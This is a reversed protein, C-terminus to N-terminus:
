KIKKFKFISHFYIVDINMRFYKCNFDLQHSFECNGRSSWHSINPVMNLYWHFKSHCRFHVLTYIARLIGVCPGYLIYWTDLLFLTNYVVSVNRVMKITTRNCNYWLLIYTLHKM